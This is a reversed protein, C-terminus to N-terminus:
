RRGAAPYSSSPNRIDSTRTSPRPSAKALFADLDAGALGEETVFAKLLAMTALAAKGQDLGVAQAPDALVGRLLREATGPDIRGVEDCLAARARGVFRIVEAAQYGRPFRRRAAVALAAAQLLGYASWSSDEDLLGGTLDFATDDGALFARLTAVHEGGV